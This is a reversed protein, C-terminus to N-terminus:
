SLLYATHFACLHWISHTIVYFYRNFPYALKTCEIYHQMESLGTFFLGIIAYSQIRNNRLINSYDNALFTAVAGM